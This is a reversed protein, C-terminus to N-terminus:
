AAAYTSAVIVGHDIGNFQLKTLGAVMGASVGLQNEYDFLEEVWSMETAGQKQGYAFAASQAGLLVARRTDTDATTTVAGQTIRTSELLLCNNYYGVMSGGKFIPSDKEGMFGGEVLARQIDMWTQGSSAQKLDRVQYPHMVFAYCKRGRITAPRIPLTRTKALVVAADIVALSMNDGSNDLDADSTTGAESWIQSSTGPAVVAQMGTYRTDTQPTYGCVQNFFWSDLRDAWWDQLGMRAENRVSFPVRQESMKGASRVAHRLQDIFVDDYYTTLSEESGELTGDGAIGAGSLQMRLGIRVRDGESKNMENKIQVVSDSGTGMFESIFTEKLAEAFLKKAWLKVALNDNVGYSTTAM